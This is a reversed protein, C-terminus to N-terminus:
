KAGSATIKKVLAAPLDRRVAEREFVTMKRYGNYLDRWASALGGVADIKGNIEMEVQDADKIMYEFLEITKEDTPATFPTVLFILTRLELGKGLVELLYDATIIVREGNAKKM